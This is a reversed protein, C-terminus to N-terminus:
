FTFMLAGYVFDIDNDAGSAAGAQEVFDGAFFHSYGAYGSWHRDFQVARHSRGFQRIRVVVPGGARGVEDHRAPRGTQLIRTLLNDDDFPMREGVPPYASGPKASAAILVASGDPEYRVVAAGDCDLCRVMEEAVASYVESPTVLGNAVM